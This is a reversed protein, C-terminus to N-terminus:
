RFPCGQGHQLVPQKDGRVDRDTRFSSPACLFYGCARYVICMRTCQKGARNVNRLDRKQMSGAADTGSRIRRPSNETAAHPVYGKRLGKAFLCYLYLASM